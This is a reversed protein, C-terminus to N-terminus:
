RAMFHKEMAFLDEDGLGERIAEDLERRIEAHVALTLGTERQLELNLEADKAALELSFETGYDRRLLKEKKGVYAPSAFAGTTFAELLTARPIKAREGLVLMSTLAVLHHVGVGNLVVKLASGQGVPGAHLVRKCMLSLVPMVYALDEDRAGALAILEGREAPRVTGSVPADVFRGGVAEVASAIALAAARGITSMDVVVAGPELGALVGDEGALVEELAHRDSLMTVVVDAGKVCARPTPDARVRLSDVAALFAEVRGHSRNWVRLTSGALALKKAMPAGMNGLGLFAVAPLPASTM